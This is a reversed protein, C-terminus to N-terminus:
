KLATGHYNVYIQNLSFFKQLRKPGLILQANVPGITRQNEATESGIRKM